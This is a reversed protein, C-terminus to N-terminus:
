TKKAKRRGLKGSIVEVTKELRQQDYFVTAPINSRSEVRPDWTQYSPILAGEQNASLCDFSHIAYDPDELFLNYATQADGKQIAERFDKIKQHYEIVADIINGM